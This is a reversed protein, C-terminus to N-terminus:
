STQLTKSHLMLVDNSVSLAFQIITPVLFFLSKQERGAGKRGCSLCSLIYNSSEKKSFLVNNKGQKIINASAASAGLVTSLVNIYILFAKM